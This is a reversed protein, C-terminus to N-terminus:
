VFFNIELNTRKDLSDLFPIKRPNHIWLQRWEPPLSDAIRSISGFLLITEQM